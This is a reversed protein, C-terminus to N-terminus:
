GAESTGHAKRIPNLSLEGNAWGGDDVAQSGDESGGDGSWDDVKM